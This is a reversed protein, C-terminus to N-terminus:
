PSRNESRPQYNNNNRQYNKNCLSNKNTQHRNQYNNDNNRQKAVNATVSTSVYIVKTTALLKAEHNLM